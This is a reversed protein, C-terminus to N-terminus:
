KIWENGCGGVCANNVDLYAVQGGKLCNPCFGKYKILQRDSLGLMAKVDFEQLLLDIENQNHCKDIKTQILRQYKTM